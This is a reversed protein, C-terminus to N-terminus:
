WSKIIKIFKQLFHRTLSPPLGSARLLAQSFQSLMKQKILCCGATVFSPLINKSLNPKLAQSQKQGTNRKNRKMANLVVQSQQM